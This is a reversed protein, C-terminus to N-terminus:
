NFLREVKSALLGLAPNKKAEYKLSTLSRSENKYSDIKQRGKRNKYATFTKFTSKAGNKSLNADFIILDSSNKISADSINAGKTIVLNGTINSDEIRVCNAAIADNIGSIRVNDSIESKDILASGSIEVRGSIRSNNRVKVYAGICVYDSVISDNINANAAIIASDKIHSYGEITARDVIWASDEVVSADTIFAKDLAEAKGKIVASRAIMSKDHMKANEKVCSSGYAVSDDYLWASGKSISNELNSFSEVFGGLDGKKVTGFDRLAKIRYCKTGNPLQISETTLEYKDNPMEVPVYSEMVKVANEIMATLAPIDSKDHITSIYSKFEKVKIPDILFPADMMIENNVTRYLTFSTNTSNYISVRKVYLRPILMVDIPSKILAKRGITACDSVIANGLVTAGDGIVSYGCAIAAGYMEVEDRITAHQCIITDGCICFAAETKYYKYKPNIIAYDEIIANGFISGAGLVKANSDILARGRIITNLCIVAKDRVRVKGEIFVNHDILNNGSIEALGSIRSNGEIKAGQSIGARGSLISKGLLKANQCVRSFGTAISDDYIWSTGKSLDNQLNRESEVFGGLDGKKVDGFDALAKIRFLPREDFHKDTEILEYKPIATDDELSGIVEFDLM